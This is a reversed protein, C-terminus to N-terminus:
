RSTAIRADPEDEFIVRASFDFRTLLIRDGAGSGGAGLLAAPATCFGRAVVQWERRPGGLAGIRNQRLEDTTCKDDGRTAFVRREGDFIVTLNTPSASRTAGEPADPFGFVFRLRRGDAGRAPGAIAVRLGRGDPRPGGECTMQADSWAIDLDLAGRLRARLYGQGGALCGQGALPAPASPPAAGASSALLLLVVLGVISGFPLM